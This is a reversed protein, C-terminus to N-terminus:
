QEQWEAADPTAGSGGVEQQMPHLGAPGGRMLHSGAAGGGRICRMHNWQRGEGWRMLHLRAAGQGVEADPTVGSAGRGAAAPGGARRSREGGGVVVM